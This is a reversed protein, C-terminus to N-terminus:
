ESRGSELARDVVQQAVVSLAKGEARAQERLLEYAEATAVDHRYALVGKAQEVVSRQTIAEYVRAAVAGEPLDSAHVVALTALDAFLQGLRTVGEPVPEEGLFVNLGGLARGRWVMPYAHVGTFGAEVIATGIGGWREVMETGVAEVATATDMSELCPGADHQLQLLELEASQHSSASMLRVGGREERTLVAVAAAPYLEACSRVLTDLVDGTDYRRTMASVAEAVAQETTMGTM